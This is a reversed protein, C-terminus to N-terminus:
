WTGGNIIAGKVEGTGLNFTISISKGNIDNGVFKIIKKNGFESIKFVEEDEQYNTNVGVWHSRKSITPSNFYIIQTITKSVNSGSNKNTQITFTAQITMKQSNPIFNSDYEITYVSNTQLKNNDIIIQKQASVNDLEDNTCIIEITAQETGNRIFNEIKENNGGFDKCNITIMIKKDNESISCNTVSFIPPVTRCAFLKTTIFESHKNTNDIACIGFYVETEKNNRSFDAEVDYILNSIDAVKWTNLYNWPESDSYRYSLQYEKITNQNTLIENGKWYTSNLDKPFNTLSFTLRDKSNFWDKYKEMADSNINVNLKTENEWTPAHQTILAIQTTKFNGADGFKNCAAVQFVITANPSNTPFNLQKYLTYNQIKLKAKNEVYSSSFDKINIWDGSNISAQIVYDTVIDSYDTDFQLVSEQGLVLPEWNSNSFTLNKINFRPFVEYEKDLKGETINGFSDILQVKFAYKNGEILNLLFPGYNQQGDLAESTYGLDIYAGNSGQFIKLSRSVDETVGSQIKVSAYIKNGIKEESEFTYIKILEPMVMHPRKSGTDVSSVFINGKSDTITLKIWIKKASKQSDTPIRIYSVSSGYYTSLINGSEEQIDWQYNTITNINNKVTATLNRIEGAFGNDEIKQYDIKIEPEPMEANIFNITLYDPSFKTTTSGPQTTSTTTDIIYIYLPINKNIEQLRKEENEVIQFTYNKNLAENDYSFNLVRCVALQDLDGSIETIDSDNPILKRVSDFNTQSIYAKLYGAGCYNHASKISIEVKTEELFNLGSLAEPKIEIKGINFEGQSNCGWYIPDGAQKQYFNERLTRRDREYYSLNTFSVLSM